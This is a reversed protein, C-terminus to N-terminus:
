SARFLQFDGNRITILTMPKRPNGDVFDTVGTAGEYPPLEDIADRLAERTVPRGARILARAGESTIGIADWAFAAWLDPARGYRARYADVFAKKSPDTPFFYTTTVLGEAAAGALKILEPNYLPDAGGVPINLGAQRLQQLFIASPGYHSGLFIGDINSARIRTIVARFDRADPLMADFVPVTAGAKELEAKTAQGVFIGWDDQYYLLAIRKAKLHKTMLEANLVAVIDQTNPMRFQFKSIKTFDPHSATPSVQPMKAEAFIKGAAISSGTTFSGIAAVINQDAVFKQAIATSQLPDGRDDEQLVVLQRGGVGGAANTREVFLDIAQKFREGNAAFRGTLPGLFGYTLSRAQAQARAPGVPSLVAAAAGGAALGLAKRRTFKM